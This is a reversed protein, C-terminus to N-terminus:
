QLNSSPNQGFKRKFDRSFHTPSEYGVEFATSSVSHEGNELLSRSTILRLDKQYQLPTTGTVAKFHGHFASASMGVEKALSPVRLPAAVDNRILAIARAIRSGHSDRSMLSQLIAGTPSMLLRYHIERLLSPGLVELAQTDNALLLYRHLPELWEPDCPHCSIAGSGNNHIPVDGTQAFLERISALSLSLVIALYPSQPDARTIRSIVPLHHSVVLADGARVEVKVDGSRM